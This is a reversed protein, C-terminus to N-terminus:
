IESVKKPKAKTEKRNGSNEKRNKKKELESGRRKLVEVLNSDLNESKQLRLVVM